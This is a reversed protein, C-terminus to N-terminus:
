VVSKRDEINKVTYSVIPIVEAKEAILKEIQPFILRYSHHSGTLGIGIRKGELNM